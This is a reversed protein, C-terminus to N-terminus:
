LTLQTELDMNSSGKNQSIVVNCIFPDIEQLRICLRHRDPRYLMRIGGGEFWVIQVVAVGCSM